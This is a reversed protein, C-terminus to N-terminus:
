KRSERLRLSSANGSSWYYRVSRRKVRRAMEVAVATPWPRKPYWNQEIDTWTMADVDRKPQHEYRGGGVRQGQLRFEIEGTAEDGTLPPWFSIAFPDELTFTTLGAIESSSTGVITMPLSEIAPHVDDFQHNVALLSIGSAFRAHLRPRGGIPIPFFKPVVDEGDIRVSVDSSRPLLWFERMMLLRLLKPETVTAPAPTFVKGWRWQPQRHATVRVSICRGHRDVFDATADVNQKDWSLWAHGNGGDGITPWACLEGRNMHSTSADQEFWREDLGLSTDAYVDLRRQHDLLHVICGQGDGTELLQIELTQYQSDGLIPIELFARIPSRHVTVSGFAGELPTIESPSNSMMRSQRRMGTNLVAAMKM